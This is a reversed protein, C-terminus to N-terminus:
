KMPRDQFDVEELEGNCARQGHGIIDCDQFWDDDRGSTDSTQM